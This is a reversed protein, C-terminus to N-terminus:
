TSCCRWRSMANRASAGGTSKRRRCRRRRASRRVARDRRRSRSGRRRLAADGQSVAGPIFHEFRAIVQRWWRGISPSRKRISIRRAKTWLANACGAGVAPSLHRQSLGMGSLSLYVTRRADASGRCDEGRPLCRRPAEDSSPKANSSGCGKAITTSAFSSKRPRHLRCTTM